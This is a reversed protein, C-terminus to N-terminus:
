VLGRGAMKVTDLVARALEEWVKGVFAVGGVGGSGDAGTGRLRRRVADVAGGGTGGSQVAPRRRLRLVFSVIPLLVFLVVYAIVKARSAGRLITRVSARVLALTSPARSPGATSPDTFSARRIVSNPISSSSASASSSRAASSAAAPTASRSRSRAASSGNPLHTTRMAKKTRVVRSASQPTVTRSTATSAISQSSTSHPSHRGNAHSEADRPKPTPSQSSTLPTLSGANGNANIRGNHRPKATHTSSSSASSDSPAPSTARSTTSSSPLSESPLASKTAANANVAAEARLQRLSVTYQERVDPSLEREYTLFDEAYDWDQLRPLVHLCYLELVKTYGGSDTAGDVQGHKSLWDEIMRRAVDASDLKLSSLVLTILIQSPLYASSPAHAANFPTFLQLSRGYLTTMLSEPSLLLNARLTPSLSEPNQSSSSSAYLTTEFTIRLIDWKRRQSALSDNLSVASAPPTLLSTASSILSHTLPVDRQLFARAARPYLSRLTAVTSSPSPSSHAHLSQSAKLSIVSTPSTATATATSM